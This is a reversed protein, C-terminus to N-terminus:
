NLVEHDNTEEELTFEKKKVTKLQTRLNFKAAEKQLKAFKNEYKSVKKLSPKISCSTFQKIISIYTIQLITILFQLFDFIKSNAECIMSLLISTALKITKGNLKKRKTMSIVKSKVYEPMIPTAYKRLNM